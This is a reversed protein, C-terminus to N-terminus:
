SSLFNLLNLKWSILEIYNGYTASKSKLFFLVYLDKLCQPVENRSCKEAHWSSSMPRAAGDAGRQVHCCGVVVRRDDGKEERLARGHVDHCLMWPPATRWCFPSSRRLTGTHGHKLSNGPGSQRAKHWGKSQSSSRTQPSDNQQTKSM